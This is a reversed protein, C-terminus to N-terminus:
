KPFDPKQAVKPMNLMQCVTGAQLEKVCHKEFQQECTWKLHNGGNM